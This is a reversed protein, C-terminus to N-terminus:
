VLPEGELTFAAEDDDRFSRKKVNSLIVNQIDEFCLAIRQIM